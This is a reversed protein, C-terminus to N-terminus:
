VEATWTPGTVGDWTFEASASQIENNRLDPYKKDTCIATGTLNAPTSGSQLPWTIVTSVAAGGLTVDADGSDFLYEITCSGADALDASVKQMFGTTSLLSIDLMDIRQNGITIAVVDVTFGSRTLTAGNGTDAM